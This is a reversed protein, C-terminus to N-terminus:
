SARLKRWLFFLANQAAWFRNMERDGQFQHREVSVGSQDALAIYTLGVPKLDTAGTPGSIGTVAIAYDAAAIRLAGLAMEGATEESVAGVSGLTEEKVGLVSTKASDAYVVYSQKLYASSGPVDTLLKALLGGTCSEAATVTKGRATLLAAVADALSQADIGYVEDQQLRARLGAEYHDLLKQVEDDTSATAAIRLDVGYPKALITLEIGPPTSFLDRVRDNV